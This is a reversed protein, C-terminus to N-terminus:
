YCTARLPQSADDCLAQEFHIRQKSILFYAKFYVKGIERHSVIRALVGLMKDPTTVFETSELLLLRDGIADMGM